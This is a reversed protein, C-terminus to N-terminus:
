LINSGQFFWNRVDLKFTIIWCVAGFLRMFSWLSWRSREFERVFFPAVVAHSHQSITEDIGAFHDFYPPAAKSSTLVFCFCRYFCQHHLTCKATIGFTKPSISFAREDAVVVGVGIAGLLLDHGIKAQCGTCYFIAMWEFCNKRSHDSHMSIFCRINLQKMGCLIIYWDNKRNTRSYEYEYESAFNSEHMLRIFKLKPSHSGNWRMSITLHMRLWVFTALPALHRMSTNM